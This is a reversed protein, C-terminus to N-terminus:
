LQSAVRPPSPAALWSSLEVFRIHNWAAASSPRPGVWGNKDGETICGRGFVPMESACFGWSMSKVMLPRGVTESLVRSNTAVLAMGEARLRAPKDWRV